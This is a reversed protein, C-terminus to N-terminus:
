THHNPAAPLHDSSRGRARRQRLPVLLFILLLVFVLIVQVMLLLRNSQLLAEELTGRRRKV